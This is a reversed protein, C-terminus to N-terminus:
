AYAKKDKFIDLPSIIEEKKVSDRAWALCALIEDKKLHPYEQLIEKVTMGSSLLELIFEVSIRTGKIVPKGRLVKSNIVIKKRYNEKLMYNSIKHKYKVM